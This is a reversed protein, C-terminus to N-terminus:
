LDKDIDKKRDKALKLQSYYLTDDNNHHTSLLDDDDLYNGQLM